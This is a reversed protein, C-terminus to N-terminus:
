RRADFSKGCLYVPACLCTIEFRNWAAMGIAAPNRQEYLAETQSGIDRTVNIEILRHILNGIASQEVGAFQAGDDAGFFVVEDVADTEPCAAFEDAGGVNKGDGDLRKHVTEIVILVTDGGTTM